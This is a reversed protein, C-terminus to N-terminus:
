KEAMYLGFNVGNCSQSFDSAILTGPVARAYVIYIPM